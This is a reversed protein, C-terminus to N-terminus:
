PTPPDSTPMPSAPDVSRTNASSSSITREPALDVGIAQQLRAMAVGIAGIAGHYGQELTVVNRYDRVVRDFEVVGNSYATQDVALTERAQPLITTRYLEATAEAREVEALLDALLATYRDSVEDVGAHAAQHQFHAQSELTDYKERWIPLSVQVGLAWPDEGVAVINSPPRNDDTFFYSASLMFEPRRSLRAVEIGWRTAEARLRAAAIEPQAELATQLLAEADLNTVGVEIVRPPNVPTEAPRALRQNLQALVGRRRRRDNLLKEELRSLELAGLRVDGQSAKGTAVRANAVDILSQLLQQNAELTEIQRDLVYLRYWYSRVDAVIRLQEAELQEHIALAEILTQQQRADLRGLWPIVQSLNMNARQSGAATEIPDGFFNAGLKPDPLQYALHSAALAAQYEHLLRAIRPNREVAQRELMLVDDSGLAPLPEPTPRPTSTAPSEQRPQPSATPAAQQFAVQQYAAQTVSDVPTSPTALTAVPSAVQGSSALSVPTRQESVACGGVLTLTLLLLWRSTRM